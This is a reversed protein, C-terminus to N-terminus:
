LISAPPHFPSPHSASDPFTGVVLVNFNFGKRVSKRHWQNPLNAFGVYGTLKRRVINTLQSSKSYDKEPVPPIGNSYSSLNSMMDPSKPPARSPPPPSTGAFMNTKASTFFLLLARRSPKHVCVLIRALFLFDPPFCLGEVM